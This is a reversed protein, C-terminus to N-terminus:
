AAGVKRKLEATAHKARGTPRFSRLSRGLHTAVQALLYRQCRLLDHGAAPPGEYSCHLLFTNVPGQRAYLLCTTLTLLRGSRLQTLYNNHLFPNHQLEQAALEQLLALCNPYQALTLVNAVTCAPRGNEGTCFGALATLYRRILPAHLEEELSDAWALCLSYYDVVQAPYTPQDLLPHPAFCADFGSALKSLIQHLM